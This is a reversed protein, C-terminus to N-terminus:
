PIVKTIEAFFFAETLLFQCLGKAKVAIVNGGIFGASYLRM